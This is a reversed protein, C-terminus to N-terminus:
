VQVQNLEYGLNTIDATVTRAQEQLTLTQQQKQDLLSQLLQFRKPAEEKEVSIEHRTRQLELTTADSERLKTKIEVERDRKQALIDNLRNQHEQKSKETEALLKENVSDQKMKEQLLSTRNM